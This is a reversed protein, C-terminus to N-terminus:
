EVSSGEIFPFLHNVRSLNDHSRKIGGGGLAPMILTARVGNGTRHELKNNGIVRRVSIILESVRYISMNFRHNVSRQTMDSKCPWVVDSRDRAVSYCRSMSWRM